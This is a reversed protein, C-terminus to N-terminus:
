KRGGRERQNAEYQDVIRQLDADSAGSIAARISSVDRPDVNFASPDIGSQALLRNIMVSLQKDNLALLGELAKKDIQM